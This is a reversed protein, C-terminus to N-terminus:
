SADLDCFWPKVSTGDKYSTLYVRPLHPSVADFNPHNYTAFISAPFRTAVLEAEQTCTVLYRHAAATPDGGGEVHKGAQTTLAARLPHDQWAAAAGPAQMAADIAAATLGGAAWLDSMTLTEMGAEAAHAAIAAFYTGSRAGPINNIRAHTDTFLLTVTPPAQPVRRLGDAYDALRRLAQRDVDAIVDRGGCGWYSLLSIPEGRTLSRQLTARIAEPDSPQARKYKWSNLSALLEEALEGSVIKRLVGTAIKGAAGRPLYGLQVVADPWMHPSLREGLWARLAADTVSHGERLVCACHIREGVLEDRLGVTKSSEVAPHQGLVREIDASFVNTGNRIIIDKLRGSIHLVGDGDVHGLDGTRFFGDPTMSERTLQPNKFYGPSVIPGKILVEGSVQHEDGDASGAFLLLESDISRTSDIRVECELPVGVGEHRRPRGPVTSVAWCTTETLGYGQHIEFGFTAEFDRWTHAALPAAGCFGMRLGPLPANPGDPFLKLLLAMISPVLSCVTIGQEALRRWFTKATRYGFLDALHIRAGGVLPVLGTMMIANMHHTPLTCYLRDEPGIAYRRALATANAMLNAQTLTVCKNTGTTGSTYIMLVVDDIVGPGPPADIGEREILDMLGGLALLHERRGAGPPPSADAHVTLAPAADDLIFALEARHLEPDIPVLTARRAACAILLPFILWHNRVVFAVKDRRGVGLAALVGVLRAATDLLGRRSVERGTALHVISVADPAATAHAWLASVISGPAEDM